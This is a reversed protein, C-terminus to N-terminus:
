LFKISIYSAINGDPVIEETGNLLMILMFYKLNPCKNDINFYPKTNTTVENLCTLLTVM